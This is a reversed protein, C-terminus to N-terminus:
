PLASEHALIIGTVQRADHRHGSPQHRPLVQLHLQRDGQAGAGRVGPLRRRRRRRCPLRRPLALHDHRHGHLVAGALALRQCPAAAPQRPLQRFRHLHVRRLRQRLHLRLLGAVPDGARDDRHWPRVAGSGGGRPLLQVDGVPEGEPRHNAARRPRLVGARPDEGPHLRGPVGEQGAADDGGGGAAAGGADEAEAAAHRAAGDAAVADRLQAGVPARRGVGAHRVGVREGGRHLQRLPHHRRGAGPLAGGAGAVPHVGLEDPQRRRGARGHTPGRDGRHRAGGPAGAARRREADAAAPEGADGGVRDGREQRRRPPVGPAAGGAPGLVGGRVGGPVAGRRCAM